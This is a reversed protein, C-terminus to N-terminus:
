ALENFFVVSCFEEEDDKLMTNSILTTFICQPLVPFISNIRVAWKVLLLMPSTVTQASCFTQITRAIVNYGRICFYQRHIFFNKKVRRKILLLLKNKKVSTWTIKSRDCEFETFYSQFNIDKYSISQQYSM